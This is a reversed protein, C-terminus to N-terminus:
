RYGTQGIRQVPPTYIDPGPKWNGFAKNIAANVVAADFKGVVYLASRKAGFNKTYFDKVNQLRLDM